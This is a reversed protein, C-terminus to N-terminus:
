ERLRFIHEVEIKHLSISIYPMALQYIQTYSFMLAIMELLKLTNFSQSSKGILNYMLSQARDNQILFQM